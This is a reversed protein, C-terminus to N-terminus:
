LGGGTVVYYLGAVLFVFWASIDGSFVNLKKKRGLLCETHVVWHILGYLGRLSWLEMCGHEEVVRARVKEYLTPMYIAHYRRRLRDFYQRDYISWFEAETHYTRAYLWKQGGLAHLKLGISHNLEIFEEEPRPGPSHIGISLLVESEKPISESSYHQAMLGHVKSGDPRPTTQRVPCLCIPYQGFSDDLYDILESAGDYPVAIDQITYQRFLGSAHKGICSGARDHRFLYDVLPIYDEAPTGRALIEEMHMCFGADTPRTFHQVPTSESPKDSLYGASLVGKDRSYMIGDLYHCDTNTTYRQIESVGQSVSSVPRYELRVYPKAPFLQIELLTVVGLTGFSAAAGYFLETNETTSARMVQGNALVVEIRTVTRDFFGHRFSSSGGSTDAFAGGATIKRCGMVVPPILGHALTAAVLNEMPVSPEVLVMKKNTDVHLVSNLSRIDITNTLTKSSERTCQTSGNYIQFGLCRDYLYRAKSSVEIVKEAHEEM